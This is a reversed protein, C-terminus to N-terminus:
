YVAKLKSPSIPKTCDIVMEMIRPNSKITKIHAELETVSHYNAPKQFVDNKFWLVVFVGYNCKLAKMYVPLQANIGNEINSIDSYRALKLEVAVNILENNNITKSVLFDIQGSAAITERVISIGMYNFIYRILNFISPQLQAELKPTGADKWMDAYHGHLEISNKVVVDFLRFVFEALNKESKIITSSLLTRIDILSSSMNCTNLQEIFKGASESFSNPNTFSYIRQNLLNSTSKEMVRYIYNSFLNISIDKINLEIYPSLLNFSERLVTIVYEKHPYYDRGIRASEEPFDVEESGSDQMNIHPAYLGEIIVAVHCYGESHSPELDCLHLWSIGGYTMDPQSHFIPDQFVSAIKTVQIKYNKPSHITFSQEEKALYRQPISFNIVTEINKGSISLQNLPLHDWVMASLNFGAPISNVQQQIEDFEDDSFIDAYDDFFLLLEKSSLLHYTRSISILLRILVRQELPFKANELLNRLYKDLQLIEGKLVFEVTIKSLCNSLAGELQLEDQNLYSRNDKKLGDVILKYRIDYFDTHIALTKLHPELHQTLLEEEIGLLQVKLPYTALRHNFFINTTEHYDRILDKSLYPLFASLIKHFVFRSDDLLSTRSEENYEIFSISIDTPKGSEQEKLFRILSQLYVRLPVINRLEKKESSNSSNILMLIEKIFIGADDIEM